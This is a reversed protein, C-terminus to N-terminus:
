ASGDTGASQRAASGASGTQLWVSDGRPLAYRFEEGDFSSRITPVREPPLRISCAMAETEFSIEVRYRDSGDPPVWVRIRGMAVPKGSHTTVLVPQRDLMEVQPELM